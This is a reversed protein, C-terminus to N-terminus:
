GDHTKTRLSSLFIWLKCLLVNYKYFTACIKYKSLSNLKIITMICIDSDHSHLTFSLPPIVCQGLCMKDKKTDRLWILAMFNKNQKKRKHNIWCCQMRNSDQKSGWRVNHLTLLKCAFGLTAFGYNAFGVWSISVKVKTRTSELCNFPTWKKNRWRKTGSWLIGYLLVSKHVPTCSSNSTYRGITGCRSLLSELQNGCSFSKM